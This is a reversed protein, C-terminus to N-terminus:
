MVCMVDGKRTNLGADFDLPAPMEKNNALPLSERINIDNDKTFSCEGKIRPQSPSAM